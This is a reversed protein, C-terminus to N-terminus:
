VPPTVKEKNHDRAIHIPPRESFFLDVNNHFAHRTGREENVRFSNLTKCILEQANKGHHEEHMAWPSSRSLINLPNRLSRLSAYQRTQQNLTRADRIICPALLVEHMASHLSSPSITQNNSVLGTESSPPPQQESPCGTKHTWVSSAGLPPAGHQHTHPVTMRPLLTVNVSQTGTLQHIHRSAHRLLIQSLLLSMRKATSSHSTRPLFFCLQKRVHRHTHWPRRHTRLSLSLLSVSVTRVRQSTHHWLIRNGNNLICRGGHTCSLTMQTM